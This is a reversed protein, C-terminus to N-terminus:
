TQSFCTDSASGSTSDPMGLYTNTTKMASVPVSSVMFTPSVWMEYFPIGCEQFFRAAIAYNDAMLERKRAMFSKLWQVDELMGAWVDQLLHPSWSFM